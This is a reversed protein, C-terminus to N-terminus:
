TAAPVARRRTVAFAFAFLAVSGALSGWWLPWMVPRLLAILQPCAHRLGIVCYLVGVCVAASAVNAAVSWGWNVKSARLRRSIYTREVAISVTVAAFPWLLILATDTAEMSSFVASGILTWALLAVFGVMLSILNAQLSYWIAHSGVGARSYFPREIFSALVSLPLGMGPGVFAFGPILGMDATITNALVPIM